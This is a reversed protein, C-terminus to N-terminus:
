PDRMAQGMALQSDPGGSDCGGARVLRPGTWAGRRTAAAYGYASAQMKTVQHVVGTM